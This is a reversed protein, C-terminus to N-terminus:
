ARADDSKKCGRGHGRGRGRGQERRRRGDGIPKKSQQQKQLEQERSIQAEIFRQEEILRQLEREEEAIASISAARERREVYWKGEIGTACMGDQKAKLDAESRQIENFSTKRQPEAQSKTPAAAAASTSWAPGTKKPISKRKPELFEGLSMKSAASGLSPKSVQHLVPAKSPTAVNASVWPSAPGTAIKASKLVLSAPQPPRKKVQLLRQEEELISQFNAPKNVVAEAATPSWSQIVKADKPKSLAPVGAAAAKSEYVPPPPPKLRYRPQISPEADKKWPSKSAAKPKMESSAEVRDVVLMQPRKSEVMAAVAKVKGEEEEKRGQNRHRKGCIHMAYANKDPCTVQCLDCRYRSSSSTGDSKLDNIKSAQAAEDFTKKAKSLDAIPEVAIVVRRGLGGGDSRAKEHGITCAELAKATSGVDIKEERSESTETRKSQSAAKVLAARPLAQLINQCDSMWDTAVESLPGTGARALALIMPHLSADREDECDPRSLFRSVSEDLYIDLNTRKSLALAADMNRRIFDGCYAILTKCGMRGATILLPVANFLDVHKAIKRTALEQLSPASLSQDESLSSPDKASPGPPKPVPLAPFSTGILLVTHEKAAALGVARHISPVRRPVPQWKVGEHGLVDNKENAGWTYLHGADTLVATHNESASVAVARGGGNEPLMGTVLQPSAIVMSGISSTMKRDNSEWGSDHNGGSTTGLPESHLGWTYCMGNSTIAVNHHRAASIGIPNVHTGSFRSESLKGLDPSPFNVKVPISNGHGWSYVSNVSETLHAPLVIVLTSQEAAAIAAVRRKPSVSWLAGVRNPRDCGSTCSGPSGNKGRNEGRLTMGLQGARSDGWCYVEGRKTLAVSHRDGAAVAIIFDHRLDDVRRPLARQDTAGSSPNNSNDDTARGLQGFRNSGFSYLGGDSTTCLSHNLAAAINVVRRRSLPGLVRTPLPRHKEDGTGLRGGKGLGFAMLHGKATAVLTHYAAAAVAVASGHAKEDDRSSGGDAEDGFCRGMEGLAFAEVRRPWVSSAGGKGGQAAGAGSNKPTDQRRSAFHPVGLAAPDARGFTMLECGYTCSSSLSSSPAEHSSTLSSSDSDADEAPVGDDRGTGRLAGSDSRNRETNNHVTLPGFADLDVDHVNGFSTGRTRGIVADDGDDEDEDKEDVLSISRGRGNDGLANLRNQDLYRRCRELDSSMSKSLLDLPTLGEADRALVMDLLLNGSNLGSGSRGLLLQQQKRRSSGSSGGQKNTKTSCNGDLVLIPHLKKMRGAHRLLLLVPRLRRQYMAAHLPTYHSEAETALLLSRLHEPQQVVPASSYRQAKKKGTALSGSVAAVAATAEEMNARDLQAARELLIHAINLENVHVDTGEGCVMIQHLFNAGEARGGRGNSLHALLSFLKNCSELEEASPRAASPRKSSPSPSRIADGYSGTSGSRYRGGKNRPM